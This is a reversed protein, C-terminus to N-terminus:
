DIYEFCRRGWNSEPAIGYCDTFLTISREADTDWLLVGLRYRPEAYTNCRVIATEFRRVAERADGLDLNAIGANNWAQCLDPQFLTAQEFLEVAMRVRGQNYVAWGLNNRATGPTVYTPENVLATCVEEARAWNEITLYVTGLNNQIDYREPALELAQVYYQEALRYEMRGQHIFGLLFLADVNDPDAELSQYLENIAQPIEYGAFYGRALELHFGSRQQLEDTRSQSGGCAAFMGCLLLSAVPLTRSSRHTENSM